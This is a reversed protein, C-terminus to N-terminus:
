KGMICPRGCENYFKGLWNMGVFYDGCQVMGWKQDEGTRDLPTMDLSIPIKSEEVVLRKILALLDPKVALKSELVMKLNYKTMSVINCRAIARASIGEMSAIRPIIGSRQYRSRVDDDLIHNCASVVAASEISDCLLNDHKFPESHFMSLEQYRSALSGTFYAITPDLMLCKQIADLGSNLSSNWESIEELTELFACDQGSILLHIM